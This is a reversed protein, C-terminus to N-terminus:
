GPASGRKQAETLYRDLANAFSQLDTKGLAAPGGSIQGNSRLEEMFHRRALHERTNEATYLTGRPNLGVAQNEVIEAALPIDATIALDGADAHEVIHDDAVDPGGDVRIAQIFPNNAPTQLRQNAVWCTEIELRLSARAVITKVDNPAADADVWIKM